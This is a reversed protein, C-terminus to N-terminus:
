AEERHVPCYFTAGRGQIDERYACICQPGLAALIEDTMKDVLHSDTPDDGLWWEAVRRVRERESALM